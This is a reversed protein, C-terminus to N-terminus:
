AVQLAFETRVTKTDGIQAENLVTSGHMDGVGILRPERWMASSIVYLGPNSGVAGIWQGRLSPYTFLPIVVGTAAYAKDTADVTTIEGLDDRSSDTTVDVALIPFRSSNVPNSGAWSSVRNLVIAAGGSGNILEELKFKFVKTGVYAAVASQALLYRRAATEVEV